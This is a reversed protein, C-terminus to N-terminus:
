PQWQPYFYFNEETLQRRGQGKADIIFLTAHSAGFTHAAYVISAGDPNWDPDIDLTEEFTLQDPTNGDGETGQNLDIVFIDKIHDGDRTSSFALKTDDPSWDPYQDDRPHNTVRILHTGDVNIIYIDQNGSETASFAIRSGDTSWDPDGELDLNGETLPTATQNALNYLSIQHQTSVYALLKGDPSWAHSSYSAVQGLLFQPDDGHSDMLWIEAQVFDDVTYSVGSGDPLWTAYRNNNISSGMAMDLLTQQNRGNANMTGIDGDPYLSFLITGRSATM